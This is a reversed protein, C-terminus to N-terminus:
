GVLGEPFGLVIPGELLDENERGLLVQFLRRAVAKVVVIKELRGLVDMLLLLFRRDHELHRMQAQVWSQGEVGDVLEDESELVQGMRVVELLEVILEMLVAANELIWVVTTVLEALLQERALPLRQLSLHPRLGVHSTEPNEVLFLIREDVQIGDIEALSVFHELLVEFPGSVGLPYAVPEFDLLVVELRLRGFRSVQRGLFDFLVEFDSEVLAWLDVVPLLLVSAAPGVCRGMVAGLGVADRVHLVLVNGLLGLVEVVPQHDPIVFYLLLDVRKGSVDSDLILPLLFDLLLHLQLLLLLFLEAARDDNEVPVLFHQGLALGYQPTGQLLRRNQLRALIGLLGLFRLRLFLLFLVGEFVSHQFHLRAIANVLVCIEVPRLMVQDVELGLREEAVRLDVGLTAVIVIAVRLLGARRGRSQICLRYLLQLGVYRAM